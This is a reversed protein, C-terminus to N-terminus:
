KQWKPDANPNEGKKVGNTKSHEKKKQVQNM